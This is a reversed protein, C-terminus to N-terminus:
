APSYAAIPQLFYSLLAINVQEIPHPTGPLIAMQAGSIGKYAAITEEISVMKDRDGLMILPPTTIDKYEDPKLPNDHGMSLMMESTKLLVEKWDQPAHSRALSDAFAPVKQLITDANLMKVEKAATAEDWHFKTGLTIIRSILGPHQKALYLAVYGGMSYGFITIDELQHKRIYQLTAEAFLSISFPQDPLPAGGHGPFDPLHVDYHATLSDALPQLQTSAGIAGHLLLLSPKM